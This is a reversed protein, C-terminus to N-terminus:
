LFSLGCRKVLEGQPLARCIDILWPPIPMGHQKVDITIGTM